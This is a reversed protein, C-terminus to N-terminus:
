SPHRFSPIPWRSSALHNKSETREIKEKRKRKAICPESRDNNCEKTTRIQEKYETVSMWPLFYMGPRTKRRQEDSSPDSYISNMKMFFTQAGPKGMRRSVQSIFILPNKLERSHEM